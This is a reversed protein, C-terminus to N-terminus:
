AHHPFSGGPLHRKMVVRKHIDSPHGSPRGRLTASLRAALRWCRSPWSAPPRSSSPSTRRRSKWCTRCSPCRSPAPRAPVQRLLVSSMRGQTADCVPRTLGRAVAQTCGDAPAAAHAATPQSPCTCVSAHPRPARVKCCSRCQKSRSPQLSRGASPPPVSRSSHVFV